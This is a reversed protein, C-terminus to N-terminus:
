KKNKKIKINKKNEPLTNGMIQPNHVNHSIVYQSSKNPTIKWPKDIILTDNTNTTIQRTQGEGKGRSIWLPYSAFENTKWNKTKDTLTQNSAHSVVGLDEKLPQPAKKALDAMKPNNKIFEDVQYWEEYFNKRAQSYYKIKLYGPWNKDPSITVCDRKNGNIDIIIM